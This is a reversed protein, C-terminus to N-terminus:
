CHSRTPNPPAWRSSEMTCYIAVERTKGKLDNPSRADGLHFVAGAFDNAISSINPGALIEDPSVSRGSASQKSLMAYVPTLTVGGFGFAQRYAPYLSTPLTAGYFMVALEIAAIALAASAASPQRFRTQRAIRVRPRM